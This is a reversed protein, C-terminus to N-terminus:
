QDQPELRRFVYPSKDLGLSKLLEMYKEKYYTAEKEADDIRKLLSQYESISITNNSFDM